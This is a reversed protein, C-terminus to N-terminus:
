ASATEAADQLLAACLETLDDTIMTHLGLDAGNKRVAVWGLRRGCIYQNFWFAPFPIKM